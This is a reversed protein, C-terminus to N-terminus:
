LELYDNNSGLVLQFKEKTFTTGLGVASTGVTDPVIMEVIEGFRLPYVHEDKAAGSAVYEEVDARLEWTTPSGWSLWHGVVRSGNEVTDVSTLQTWGCASRDISKINIGLVSPIGKLVVIDTLCKLTPNVLRQDGLQPEARKMNPVPGISLEYPAKPPDSCRPCNHDATTRTTQEHRAFVWKFSPETTLVRLSGANIPILAITIPVRYSGGDRWTGYWPRIRQSIEFTANVTKLLNDDFQLLENPITFRATYPDLRQPQIKTDKTTLSYSRPVRSAVLLL